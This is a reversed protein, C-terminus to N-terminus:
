HEKPPPKKRRKEQQPQQEHRRTEASMVADENTKEKLPINKHVSLKTM